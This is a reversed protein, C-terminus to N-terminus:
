NVTLEMKLAGLGKVANITMMAYSNYEDIYLDNVLLMRQTVLMLFLM